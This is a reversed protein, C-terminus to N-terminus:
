SGGTVLRATAPDPSSTYDQGDRDPTARLKALAGAYKTQLQKLVGIHMASLPKREYIQKALDEVQANELNPSGTKRNQDLVTFLDTIDKYTDGDEYYVQPSGPAGYSAERLAGEYRDCVHAADVAFGEYLRCHTNDDYFCTACNVGACDALRYNTPTASERLRSLLQLDALGM